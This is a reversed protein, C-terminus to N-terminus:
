QSASVAKQSMGELVYRHMTHIALQEAPRWVWRPGLKPQYRTTLDVETLNPGRPNFAFAGDTLRVSHNEINDQLIVSFTLRQNVLRETVRKGLRGKTYICIKADGVRQTSGRTYLPRPLGIRLLWPPRHHVEEYFMLSNWANGVPAPIEISTTVSEIAHPTSTMSDILGAFGLALFISIAPLYWRQEFRSGKVMIRLLVGMGTGLLVPGIAVIVVVISCFIGVLSLSYLSVVVVILAALALLIKMWPGVRCGYGVIVGLCFPAVLSVAWGWGVLLILLAYAIAGGISALLFAPLWFKWWVFLPKSSYTGPRDLDFPRGCEPCKGSQLGILVYGCDLCRPPYM